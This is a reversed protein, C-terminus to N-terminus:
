CLPHSALTTYCQKEHHITLVLALKRWMKWFADRRLLTVAHPRPKVQHSPVAAATRVAEQTCLPSPLRRNAETSNM